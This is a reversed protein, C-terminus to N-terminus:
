QGLAERAQEVTYNTGYQQNYAAVASAFDDFGMGQMTADLDVTVGAASAAAITDAVEQLSSQAAAALQGADFDSLTGAALQEIVDLNGQYASAYEEVSWNAGYQANALDTLDSYNNIDLGRLDGLAQAFDDLTFSFSFSESAQSITEQIGDLSENSIVDKFDELDLLERFNQIALQAKVEEIQDDSLNVEIGATDKVKTPIPSKWANAWDSLVWKNMIEVSALQMNLSELGVDLDKRYVELLKNVPLGNDELNLIDIQIENSKKNKNLKIFKTIEGLIKLQNQDFESFDAKSLDQEFKKPLHNKKLDKVVFNALKFGSISASINKENFAPLENILSSILEYEKYKEGKKLSNDLKNYNKRFEKKFGNKSLRQEQYKELTKRVNTINKSISENIKLKEKELKSLKVRSNESQSFLLHMTYFYDLAKKPDDEIQLGLAERMTKRAQNLNYIKQINTKVSLSPYKDEFNELTYKSEKLQQMYFFEFYAMGLMMQGPYKNLLHKQKVFIKSIGEKSKQSKAYFNNINKPFLGNPSYNIKKYKGIDKLDELFVGLEREKESRESSYIETLVFFSIFSIIALKSRFNMTNFLCM